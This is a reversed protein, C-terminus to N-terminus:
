CIQKPQLYDEIAEVTKENIVHEIRCADEEAILPDLNLVEILFNTLLEHKRLLSEAELRGKDLLKIEGYPSHDIYGLDQLIVLARSVSPKTVNLEKAIDIVRILGDNKQELKLMIELYM